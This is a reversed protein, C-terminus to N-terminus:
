QPPPFRVRDPLNVSWSRGAPRSRGDFFALAEAIIADSTSQSLNPAFVTTYLPNGESGTVQVPPGLPTDFCSVRSAGALAADRADQAIAPDPNFIADYAAATLAKGGSSIPNLLPEAACGSELVARCADKHEERGRVKCERGCYVVDLGCDCGLPEIRIEEACFSCIKNQEM